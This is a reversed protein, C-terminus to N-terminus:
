PVIASAAGASSSLATYVNQGTQANNYVSHDAIPEGYIAFYATSGSAIGVDHLATAAIATKVLTANPNIRVTVSYLYNSNSVSSSSNVFIILQRALPDANPMTIYLSDAGAVTSSAMTVGSPSFNAQASLSINRNLTDQLYQFFGLVSGYGASTAITSYTGTYRGPFFYYGKSNAQVTAIPNEVSDLTLSISSTSTDVPNGYQDFLLVYGAIAGKFSPGAPGQPGTTGSKSCSQFLILSSFLTCLITPIRHTM